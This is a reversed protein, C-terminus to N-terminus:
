QSKINMARLVNRAVTRQPDKEAQLALLYGRENLGSLIQAALQRYQDDTRVTDTLLDKIELSTLGGPGEDWGNKLRDMLHKWPWLIEETGDGATKESIIKANLMRRYIRKSDFMEKTLYIEHEEYWQRIVLRAEQGQLIEIVRDAVPTIDGGLMLAFVAARQRHEDSSDLLKVLRDQNAPDAAEGIAIAAPKVLEFSGTGELIAFMADIAAKNPNMWLGRVLAARAVADISEDRIKEIIANMTTEDACYTLTVAAEKRLEQDDKPDLLIEMLKEGAEPSRLFKLAMISNRREQLRDEMQWDRSELLTAFKEEKRETATMQMRSIFDKAIGPCNLRALAHSAAMFFFGEDKDLFPKIIGCFRQDGTRGMADMLPGVDVKVRKACEPTNSFPENEKYIKMLIDAAGDPRVKGFWEVVGNAIKRAMDDQRYRVSPDPIQEETVPMWQTKQYMAQAIRPDGLAELTWLAQNRIEDGQKISEDDSGPFQESVVTLLFDKSRPDELKKFKGIVKYKEDAHQMNKYIMELGPAGVSQTIANLISDRLSPKSNMAQLLAPGARGDTTRGLSIAAAEAVDLNEDNVLKLLPTVVDGDTRFGLEMAAYMKLMPDPSDAMQILKDTTGMRVILDPEFEPLSKPTVIRKGIAELLPPFGRDDGLMCLAWAFEAKSLDESKQMQAFIAPIGAKAEEGGIKALAKAAEKAVKGGRSVAKSLAPISATDKAEGLELAAQALIDANDSKELINRMAAEFQGDPLTLAKNLEKEWKQLNTYNKYWLAGAVGGAALVLLFAILMGRNGRNIKEDSGGWDTELGGPDMGGPEAGGPAFMDNGQFDNPGNGGPNRVENM